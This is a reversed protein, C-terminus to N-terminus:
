PFFQPEILSPQPPVSVQPEHVDGCVQPPPPVALTHPPLPEQAMETM